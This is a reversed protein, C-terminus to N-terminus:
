PLTLHGWVWGTGGPVNAGSVQCWSQPACSGVLEVQQPRPEARLIGVVRGVGNPENKVNYVDVDAAVTAMPKAQQPPAAPTACNFKEQISWLDERGAGVTEKAIGSALGDDNINGTFRLGFPTTVGQDFNITFDISSGNMGGSPTGSITKGDSTRYSPTGVVRDQSGYMGIVLGRWNVRIVGGPWNWQDCAPALPIMPDAEAPAPATLLGAATLATAAAFLASKKVTTPQLM